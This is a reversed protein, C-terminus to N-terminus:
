CLKRVDYWKQSDDRCACEIVDDAQASNIFGSVACVLCLVGATVCLKRM